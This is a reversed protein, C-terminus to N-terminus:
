RQPNVNVQQGDTLDGRAAPFPKGEREERRRQESRASVGRGLEVDPYGWADVPSRVGLDREIPGHRGVDQEPPAPVRREADSRAELESRSREIVQAQSGSKRRLQRRVWDSHDPRQLTQELGGVAGEFGADTSTTENAQARVVVVSEVARGHTQADTDIVHESRIRRADHRSDLKVSHPKRQREQKQEVGDGVSRM